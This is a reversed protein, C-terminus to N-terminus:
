FNNIRHSADLDVVVEIVVDSEVAFLDVLLGLGYELRGACTKVVRVGLISIM